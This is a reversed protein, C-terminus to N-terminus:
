RGSLRDYGCIGKSSHGLRTGRLALTQRAWGRFALGFEALLYRDQLANAGKAQAMSAVEVFRKVFEQTPLEDPTEFAMLLGPPVQSLGFVQQVFAHISLSKGPDVKSKAREFIREASALELNRPKVAVPTLGTNKLQGTLAVLENLRARVKAFDRNWKPPQGEDLGRVTHATGERVLDASGTRLELSLVVRGNEEGWHRFALYSSKPDNAIDADHPYPASAGQAVIEAAKVSHRTQWPQLRSLLSTDSSRAAEVLFEEENLIQIRDLLAPLNRDLTARPINLFVHFHISNLGTESGIQKARSLAQDVSHAPKEPDTVVEPLWFSRKAAAQGRATEMKPNKLLWRPATARRVLLLSTNGEWSEEPSLKSEQLELYRVKAPLPLHDFASTSPSLKRRTWYYVRSGWSEDALARVVLDPQLTVPAYYSFFNGLADPPPDVGLNGEHEQSIIVQTDPEESAAALGGWSLHSIAAYLLVHRIQLKM